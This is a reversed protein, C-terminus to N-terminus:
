ELFRETRHYRGDGHLRSNEGIHQVLSVETQNVSYGLDRMGRSWRIDYGAGYKQMWTIETDMLEKLAKYPFLVAQTGYFADVNVAGSTTITPHGGGPLYLSLMGCGDPFEMDELYSHFQSSFIVDDELFLVYGDEPCNELGFSLAENAAHQVSHYANDMCRAHIRMKRPLLRDYVGSMYELSLDRYQSIDLYIIPSLFVNEDFSKTFREFAEANSPAACTLVVAVIEMSGVM